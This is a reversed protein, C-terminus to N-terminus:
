YLGNQPNFNVRNALGMDIVIVIGEITLSTEAINTAVVIKRVGNAAPCLAADQRKRSLKRYLPMISLPKASSVVPDRQCSYEELRHCIEHVDNQLNKNM